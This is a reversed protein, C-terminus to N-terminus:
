VTDWQWTKGGRVGSLTNEASLLLFIWQCLCVALCDSEWIRVVLRCALCHEGLIISCSFSSMLFQGCEVEGSQMRMSQLCRGEQKCFPQLLEWMSIYAYGHGCVVFLSMKEKCSNQWPFYKFSELHSKKLRETNSNPWLGMLQDSFLSSFCFDSMKLGDHPSSPIIQSYLCWHIHQHRM